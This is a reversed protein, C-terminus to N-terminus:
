GFLGRSFHPPRAINVFRMFDWLTNWRNDLNRFRDLPIPFAWKDAYGERYLHLHPCPIDEDDPNRHPPGNFDLRALIVVGRARNQYTGKAFNIQSITVDLTFSERRDPSQLPVRVAGGLGPFEHETEDLRHKELLLLADAEAQTLVIETLAV